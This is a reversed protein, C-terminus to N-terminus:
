WRGENPDDGGDRWGREDRVKHAYLSQQERIRSDSVGAREALAAERVDNRGADIARREAIKWLLARTIPKGCEAAAMLDTFADQAVDDGFRRSLADFDAVYLATFEADTM